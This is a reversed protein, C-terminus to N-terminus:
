DYIMQLLNMLPIRKHDVLVHAKNLDSRHFDIKL